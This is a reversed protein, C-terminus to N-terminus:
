LRLFPASLSASSSEAPLRPGQGADQHIAEELNSRESLSGLELSWDALWSSVSSEWLNFSEPSPPGQFPHTVKGEQWMCKHGCLKQFWRRHSPLPLFYRGAPVDDECLGVM